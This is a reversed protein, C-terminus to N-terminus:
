VITALIWLASCYCSIGYDGDYAQDLADLHTQLENLCLKDHHHYKFEQFNLLLVAIIVTAYILNFFSFLM